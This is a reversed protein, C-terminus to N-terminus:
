ISFYGCRVAAPVFVCFCKGLALCSMFVRESAQLWSGSAKCQFPDARGELRRSGGLEQPLCDAGLHSVMDEPVEQSFHVKTLTDENLFPRIMAFLAWFIFPANVVFIHAVTDPYHEEDIRSIAGFVSALHPRIHRASLGDLDIILSFGRPDLAGEPREMQALIEDAMVHVGSFEELDETAEVVKQVAWTGMREVLVPRGYHDLGLYDYLLVHRMAREKASWNADHLMEELRRQARWAGTAALREAAVAEDFGSARLFALLAQDDEVKTAERLAQVEARHEELLAWRDLLGDGM